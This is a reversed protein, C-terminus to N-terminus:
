RWYIIKGGAFFLPTHKKIDKLNQKIKKSHTILYLFRLGFCKLRIKAYMFGSYYGQYNVNDNNMNQTIKIFEEIQQDALEENFKFQPNYDVISDETVIKVKAGCVLAEDNLSSCDDFSYLINTRQLLEALDKRDKPWSMDIRTCNEIEPINRFLGKKYVFYCNIDKEKDANFFLSRDITDLRLLPVGQYFENSWSFIAESQHYPFNFGWFAPTNLMWRAVNHFLLPNGEITETYLIIDNKRNDDTIKNIYISKDASVKKGWCYIKADYGKSALIDQLKYLM